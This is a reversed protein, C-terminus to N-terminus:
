EYKIIFNCRWSKPRVVDGGYLTPDYHSLAFLGKSFGANNFGNAGPNAAGGDYFPGSYNGVARWVGM